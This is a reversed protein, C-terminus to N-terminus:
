SRMQNHWGIKKLTNVSLSQTSQARNEKAHACDDPVTFNLNPNGDVVTWLIPHTLQEPRIMTKM